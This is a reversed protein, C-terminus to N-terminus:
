TVLNIWKLVYLLLVPSTQLLYVVYLVMRKWRSYKYCTKRQDNGGSGVAFTMWSLRKGCVNLVGKYRGEM